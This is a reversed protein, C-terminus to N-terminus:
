HKKHQDHKKIIIKNFLHYFVLTYYTIVFIFIYDEIPMLGFYGIVEGAPYIWHGRWLAFNDWLIGIIYAVSWFAIMHKKTDFFRLKHYKHIIFAAIILILETILYEMKTLLLFNHLPSILLLTNNASIM